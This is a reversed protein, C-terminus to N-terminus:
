RCSAPLPPPPDDTARAGWARWLDYVPYARDLATTILGVPFLDDERFSYQFAVDIRPDRLFSRLLGDMARCGARLSSADQSRPAGPREGGVGTETIWIRKHQPCARADLATILQGLAPRDGVYQHAAWVDSSCVVDLPLAGVFEGVPTLLPGPTEAASLEGLVIRQDGPVSGLAVRMTRVLDAYALPSITASSPDCRERQPALFYGANPENWPSWWRITAREARAMAALSRILAAYAPLAAPVVSRARAGLEPNECGRPSGVAWAPPDYISVMLEPAPGSRGRQRAALARLQGAVGDFGACPGLARICGADPRAWDPPAEPSPQVTAWRVLLRLYAPRLADLQARRGAFPAGVPPGSPPALLQANQESLGIALRGSDPEGSGSSCGAILAAGLLVSAVAARRLPRAPSLGGLGGRRGGRPLLLRVRM